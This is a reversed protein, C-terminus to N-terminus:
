GIISVSGPKVEALIGRLIYARYDPVGTANTMGNAIEWRSEDEMATVFSQDLSLSYQNDSWVKDMYAADYGLRKRVIERAEFPHSHSYMEAQAISRLFRTIEEPHSYAWEQRSIVTWFTAQGSQIPWVTLNAGPRESIADLWPHWTVVADVTGNTLAGSSFAPRVDTINVEHPKIGHLTLYRGLYFEAATGRPIGITKGRVDPVSTIGKGPNGVLFMNQFRDITAFGTINEGKMITNAMVFESALGIDVENGLLGTVTAGGSDYDKITVNLGNNAFFHREEAIYILASTELSPGGITIGAPTGKFAPQSSQVFWVAFVAVAAIAIIVIFRSISKKM